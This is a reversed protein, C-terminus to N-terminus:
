ARSAFLEDAIRRATPLSDTLGLHGHGTAIWLGPHGPLRGVFPVSDPMCPRHGMWTATRCTTSGRSTRARSASSCPRAAPTPPRTSGPSRWPAASACGKKWRRSSCRRTPLFSRARCWTARAASSCTTAASRSSRCISASRSSCRARGPAPLSSPTTSRRTRCRRRAACPGSRGMRRCVAAGHRSRHACRRGGRRAGDGARLPVPRPDDRPRGPVHRRQYRAAVRPELAEISPATSSSSRSATRRACAGLGATRPWRRSTRTCTCTAAGCSCNRSASNGREDGSAGRACRCAAGGAERGVGRRAIPARVRRVACCGRRARPLYACPLYLPSQADRADERCRPWCAPCRWRRWRGRASPAPTASAAAAARSTATSWRSRPAASACNSRSSTGIIGAGIVAVRM